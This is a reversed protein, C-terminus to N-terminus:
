HHHHYNNYNAEKKQVPSGPDISRDQGTGVLEADISPFPPRKIQFNVQFRRKGRVFGEERSPSSDTWGVVLQKMNGSVHLNISVSHM